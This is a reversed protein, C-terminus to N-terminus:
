RVDFMFYQVSAQGKATVGQVVGAYKGPQDSTYFSVAGKGRSNVSPSWYLVNRLDPIRSAAQAQSDYVPSYFERQLQMGEYDMVIAHPDLEVGGLDGKYSTFSFIGVSESPGYFYTTPVVELKRVKLPDVTFIKDINFVPIGDLIVLPDGGDLFGRDSLVKIHFRGKSRTINEETVYERMVEEMTTFRTYDDLKYSKYPHGYFASSDILPDYFRRIQSGSYINLVQIGLSHEQLAKQTGTNFQFRPLTTKSFQESFPSLIDIRYTSDVQTNTQDVIENQGYFDKTNYFLRGSSDSRAAYLQVRKGPVGLYTLINKAPAGTETNVIKATIIHGNYEPLFNFVGHKNELVQSWQFRRWGQTLLLNDLAENAGADVNKLYYDASEISGRLDSGLWLYGLIDTRDIKQLSDVRYVAMSLDANVPKGAADKAMVSVNVKKRLNYQPQDAGADIFLQQVPRKFYLRECVPQRANNFVTFHSIGEGLMNKAVTFRAAGNNVIATEAITTTQGTHGFLYINEGANANSKVEITLNASGDDTLHMVYGQNNVDPLDKVVPPTDGAKVVAKYTNNAVPTFSFSGMGFKLSRFRAVTDNHQDVIVGAVNVGNGDRGVAKFGVKSMIGNILNGGEPFFQIDYAAATEKIVAEPSKLPNILTITKEFYFEPSFNKMWNTYARLRYNGNNVSVPIYLSGSGIGNKLSIKAQTVPNQNNDLVEIYGVKSLNLPKHDNGDVCYVKFWVIEGPLYVNKDTHVFIKEVLATQKYLNFSNQVEQIVQARGNLLLLCFAASLFVSKITKTSM